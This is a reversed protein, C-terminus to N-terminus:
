VGHFLAIQDAETRTMTVEPYTVGDIFMNFINEKGRIKEVKANILHGDKMRM